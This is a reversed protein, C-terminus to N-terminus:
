NYKGMNLIEVFYEYLPMLREFEEALYEPLKEDYLMGGFDRTCEVGLQKRNYWEALVGDREGKTKKYEEGSVKYIGRSAVDSVLKEFRAPNADVTRRFNLMDEAKTDYFGMGFSYDKAGIEFWFMPGCLLGNSGKISFWLHDKYPGRGFLRRADRYIRATHLLLGKDPYRGDMLAFTDRALAKFPTNLCNEFDQKHAMFWERENNFALEWLFESTSKSFGQFM